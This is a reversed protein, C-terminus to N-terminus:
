RPETARKEDPEETLVDTPRVSQREREVHQEFRDVVQRMEVRKGELGGAAARLSGLIAERAQADDAYVAAGLEYLLRARARELRRIERRLRRLDLGAGSWTRASDGAFRVHERATELRRQPEPSSLYTGCM